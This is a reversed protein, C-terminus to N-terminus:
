AQEHKSWSDEYAEFQNVVNLAIKEVEDRHMRGYETRGIAVGSFVYGWGVFGTWHRKKMWVQPETYSWGSDVFIVKYDRRATGVKFSHVRM